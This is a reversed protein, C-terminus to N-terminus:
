VRGSGSRTPRPSPRSRCSTSVAAASGQVFRAIALVFMTPATAATALGVGYIAIAGAFVVRPGLRDTLKGSIPVAGFSALTLAAFTWGYLELGQLDEEVAPLITAVIATEDRRDGRPDPSRDHAPRPLGHLGRAM